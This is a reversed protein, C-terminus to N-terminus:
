IVVDLICNSNVYEHISKPTKNETPKTNLFKIIPKPQFMLIYTFMLKGAGVSLTSDNLSVKKRKRCHNMFLYSLEINAYMHM